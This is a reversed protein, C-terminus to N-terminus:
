GSSLAPRLSMHLKPRYGLCVRLLLIELTKTRLIMLNYSLFTGIKKKATVFGGGGWGPVSVLYGMNPPIPRATVVEPKHHSTLFIM